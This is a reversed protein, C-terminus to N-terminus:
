CLFHFISFYFSSFTLRARQEQWSTGGSRKRLLVYLQLIRFQLFREGLEKLVNDVFLLHEQRYGDLHALVSVDELAQKLHHIRQDVIVM